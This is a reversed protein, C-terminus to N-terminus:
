QLSLQRAKFQGELYWRRVESTLQRYVQSDRGVTHPDNGLNDSANMITRVLKSGYEDFFTIPDTLWYFKGDREELLVRFGSILPIAFGKDIVSDGIQPVGKPDLWYYTAKQRAARKENAEKAERRAAFLGRKGTEDDPANYKKKFHFRVYDYLRMIDRSIPALKEFGYKDDDATFYELLKGSNKYAEQAPKEEAFLIPNIAGLVQIVDLIGVPQEDNESVKIIAKAQEKGLSELLWEFKDRYNALTWPKLAVSFNRAEAIDALHEEIRELIEIHVYQDSLVRDDPSINGQSHKAAKSLIDREAKVTKIIADYSHGGDIIGYRDDQPIQLSLINRKNDYDYHKVSITIGRNLLHFRGNNTKLSNIIRKPVAGTDKPRRPDPDLPIDQPLDNVNVLAHVIRTNENNPDKISRVHESSAPIRFNM